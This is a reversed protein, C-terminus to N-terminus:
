SGMNTYYQYVWLVIWLIGIGITVMWMPSGFGFASIMYVQYIVTAIWLVIFSLFVSQRFDSHPQNRLLIMLIAVAVLMIGYHVGLVEGAVGVVLTAPGVMEMIMYPTFIFSLGFFLAVIANLIFVYKAELEM